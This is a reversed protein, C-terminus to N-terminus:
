QPGYPGYDFNAIMKGFSKLSQPCDLPDFNIQMFSLGRHKECTRLAKELEVENNVITTFAVYKRNFCGALETYSWDAIENYEADAGLIHREITYGKNNILFIIPAFEYLLLTSLEQVTLQFAGDGIFLIHRRSANSLLSGLMAPLTYGISGWVPQCLFYVNEPMTIASLAIQSTGCEAIVVDDQQFFYGIRQWFYDHTIKKETVTMLLESSNRKSKQPFQPVYQIGLKEILCRLLDCSRLGPFAQGQWLVDQPNIYFTDEPLKCSYLASNIDIFRPSFAILCDSGEVRARVGQDSAAGSYTGYFHPHSEDVVCKATSLTVMPINLVEALYQIDAKLRNREVDIDLLFTPRIAARLRQLLREVVDKLMRPDSSDPRIPTTAAAQPLHPLTVQLYAIDSPVQIYVPRRERICARLVRDIEEVANMYTLCTQAVTFEKFCNMVNSFNGDATSHHTPLHNAYVHSPPSGTICVMSVHEAYAGAVGNIASLDGVGYTTLLSSIGNLRAYGDAAYAANLENCAGVFSLERTQNIQEILQLNYDGPLGIVHRVGIKRLQCFLYCGITITKNISM